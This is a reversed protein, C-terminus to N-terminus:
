FPRYVFIGTYKRKKICGFRCKVPLHDVALQGKDIEFREETVTYWRDCSIQTYYNSNDASAAPLLGINLMSQFLIVFTLLFAATKRM